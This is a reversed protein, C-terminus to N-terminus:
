YFTAGIINNMVPQVFYDNVLENLATNAHAIGFFDAFRKWESCYFNYKKFM